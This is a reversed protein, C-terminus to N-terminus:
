LRRWTSRDIISMIGTVVLYIITGAIVLAGFGLLCWGIIPIVSYAIDLFRGFHFIELYVIYSLGSLVAAGILKLM